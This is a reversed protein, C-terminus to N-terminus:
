AALQPSTPPLLRVAVVPFIVVSLLGAAILAAGNTPTILQLNIGIQTAAVIFPLSTAQLLGAAATRRAGLLEWYLLAPLARVLLLAGLFLPVRGLSAPSAFLARLDFQLGSTVFFIPVFFGFGIAELKVRFNPHTLQGTRDILRIAAGALFAGLITELGLREALAAFSLLILIAGRVGIQATTDQLRLLVDAFPMVQSAGRLSLLVLATVVVFGSLLIIQTAPATSRTSFFLSLLIVAGFDGISAAAITM